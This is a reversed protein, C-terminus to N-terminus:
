HVMVAIDDRDEAWERFVDPYERLMRTLVWEINERRTKSVDSM